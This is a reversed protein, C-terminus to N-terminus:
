ISTDLMYDKIHKHYNIRETYFNFEEALEHCMWSLRNRFWQKFVM